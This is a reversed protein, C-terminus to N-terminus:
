LWARLSYCLRDILRQRWTRDNCQELTVRSSHAIEHECIKRLEAAFPVSRIAALIEYNIELSRPDLNCSGVISWNDDVVMAKSHLMCDEREYIEIGRKLLKIYLHRLAYQVVKVDNDKPVVVRIRVGRKRARLLERLVRGSPIFYAMSLLIENRARRMLRAFVRGARSNKFGPGSDFFRIVEPETFPLRGRRYARSRWRTPQHHERRWSREYSDALERTQPGLLRVHVDRWGASIPVREGKSAADVPDILNMGGFYGIHEDVVLTKRHNRRNLLSWSFKKFLTEWITHHAHLQVGAEALKAFFASPTAQSGIADYIVRVDLGARAREILAEAIARGASDDAFMYSELWVRRRAQRIDAAMAAILPELEVFLWLDQGAVRVRPASLEAPLQEAQAECADVQM